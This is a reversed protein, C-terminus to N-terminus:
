GMTEISTMLSNENKKAESDCGIENENYIVNTEVLHKTKGARHENLCRRLWLRM